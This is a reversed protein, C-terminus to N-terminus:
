VSASAPGVAGPGSSVPFAGATRDRHRVADGGSNEPVQTHESVPSVPLKRVVPGVSAVVAETLATVRPLRTTRQASLPQHVEGTGGTEVGELGTYLIRTQDPGAYSGCAHHRYRDSCYSTRATREM